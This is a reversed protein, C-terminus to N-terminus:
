VVSKRDRTKQGESRNHPANQNNSDIDNDGNVIDSETSTESDAIENDIDEKISNPNLIQNNLEEIASEGRAAKNPKVHADDLIEESNGINSSDNINIRAGCFRCFNRGDPIIKKCNSCIM